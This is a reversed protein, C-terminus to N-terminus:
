SGLMVQKARLARLASGLECPAPESRISSVLEESIRSRVMSGVCVRKVLCVREAVCSVRPQGFYIGSVLERVILIDVGEVVEPKLTSAEALQPLVVAPRLNAFANLSSRLRLLGTEPRQPRPLNDWKYRRPPPLLPAPPPGLPRCSPATSPGPNIAM